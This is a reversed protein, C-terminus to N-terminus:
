LCAYKIIHRALSGASGAGGAGGAGGNYTLGFVLKVCLEYM